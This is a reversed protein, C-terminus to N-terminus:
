FEYDVVKTETGLLKIYDVFDVHKPHVAYTKLDELTEFETILSMDFAREEQSFNVGVDMLKVEPIHEELARLRTAIAEVNAKDNDKFKFFVIHKIM